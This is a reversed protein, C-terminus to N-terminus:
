YPKGEKMAKWVDTSCTKSWHEWNQRYEPFDSEEVWHLADSTKVRDPFRIGDLHDIEHQFIRATFDSFEQVLPKGNRDFAKLRIRQARYVKAWLRPDASYCGERGPITEESTWVITPNIYANLTGLQKRNADISTDVIIIRKSIGIQPAALGVMVRKGTDIREGRAIQLMQEIIEQIEPSTIQDPPIEQASANLIPDSPASFIPMATEQSFICSTVCLFAATFSRM